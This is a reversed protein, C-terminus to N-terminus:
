HQLRLWMESHSEMNYKCGEETCLSLWLDDSDLAALRNTTEVLITEIQDGIDAPGTIYHRRRAQSAWRNAFNGSDTVDLPIWLFGRRNGTAAHLM